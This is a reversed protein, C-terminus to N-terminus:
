VQFTLHPSIDSGLFLGGPEAKNHDVLAVSAVPFNKHHCQFSTGIKIMKLCHRCVGGICMKM